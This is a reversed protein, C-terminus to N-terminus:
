DVGIKYLAVLLSNINKIKRIFYKKYIYINNFNFLYRRGKWLSESCCYFNCLYFIITTKNPFM